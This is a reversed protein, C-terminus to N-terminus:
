KENNERATLDVEFMRKWPMRCRAIKYKKAVQPFNKCVFLQLRDKVTKAVKGNKGGANFYNYRGKLSATVEKRVYGCYGVDEFLREALFLNQWRNKGFLWVFVAQCIVTGLTNSSTNWGAYASLDFFDTKETLMQLLQLDGGNCYAGDALATVKKEQVSKVIESCFLTLNRRAYGESPIETAEVPQSAPYNLFLNIDGNGETMVGGATAIQLPLTDKLPRDEYLPVIEPNNPHAYFCRFKPTVGMHNVVARALLTMGVEDAGPYMAVDDFCNKEIEAKIFERDMTTFGYVASDDQPIVLFDITKHLQGIAKVLMKRNVARRKLYDDIYQATKNQYEELLIEEQPTLIGLQKKHLAQGTLFIERGCTKYYSPEEDDSSYGPCRMILAFAYIKLSPNICKIKNLVDLRKTLQEESLNHLRSPVIGGYLLMDLSLILYQAKAASDSLFKEVKSFDAPKKKEGLVDPTPKIFRVPSGKAIRQAFCYNCPREDLPLYAVSLTKM